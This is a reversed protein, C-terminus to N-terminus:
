NLEQNDQSSHVYGARRCSLNYLSDLYDLFGSVVKGKAKLSFSLLLVHRKSRFDLVRKCPGWSATASLCIKALATQSFTWDGFMHVIERGCDSGQSYTLVRPAKQPRKRATPLRESV